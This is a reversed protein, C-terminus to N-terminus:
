GVFDSNTLPCDSICRNRRIDTMCVKANVVQSLYYGFRHSSDLQCCMRYSLCPPILCTCFVDRLCRSNSLTTTAKHDHGINNMSSDDRKILIYRVITLRDVTFIQRLFLDDISFIISRSGHKNNACVTFIHVVAISAQFVQMCAHLWCSM